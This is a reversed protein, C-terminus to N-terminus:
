REGKHKAPAAPQQRRAKKLAPFLQDAVENWTPLKSTAPAPPNAAAVSKSQHLGPDTAVHTGADEAGSESGGARDAKVLAAVIEVPIDGRERFYGEIAALQQEAQEARAYQENITQAQTKIIEDAYGKDSWRRLKMEELSVEAKEARKNAEWKFREQQKLSAELTSIEVQKAALKHQWGICYKCKSM